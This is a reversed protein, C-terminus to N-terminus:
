LVLVVEFVTDIVVPLFCTMSVVSGLLKGINNEM